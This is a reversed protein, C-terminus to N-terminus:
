SSLKNFDATADKLEKGAKEYKAKGTSVMTETTNMVANYKDKLMEVHDDLQSKLHDVYDNGKDIIRKRTKSGKDPAFLIGVAIGALTCLLIKRTSM